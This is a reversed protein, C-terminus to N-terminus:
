ELIAVAYVIFVPAYNPMTRNAKEMQGQKLCILSFPIATVM